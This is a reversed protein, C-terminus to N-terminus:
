RVGLIRKWTNWCADITLTLWPRPAMRRTGVELYYAYDLPKGGAMREFVGFRGVIRSGEIDPGQFTINDRLTGTDVRPYEGPASPVDSHQMNEKAVAVAEIACAKVREAMEANLAAIWPAANWEVRM